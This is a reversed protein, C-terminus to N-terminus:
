RERSQDSQGTLTAITEHIAKLLEICTRVQDSAKVDSQEVGASGLLSRRADILRDSVHCLHTALEIRDM